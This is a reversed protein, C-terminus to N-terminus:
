ALAPGMASRRTTFFPDFIRSRESDPVGRGNDYVKVLVMRGAQESTIRIRPSAEAAQIGNRILNVIVQEIALPNLILAPLDAGLTTNITGGRQAAYARTLDIAREVISNIDASWREIPEQRAFRLVNRVIQGCRKANAIIDRLFRAQASEAGTSDWGIPHVLAQEASLLIMGVPNNIEHAIGAALTGVSALRETHRLQEQSAQLQRTREAVLEELRERYLQMEDANRAREIAVGALRAETEILRRDLNRPVGSARYYMALTGLVNGAASTIPHSLCARLDAERAADHYAHWRPDALIDDVIVLQGSHAAAGCAAAGPEIRMRDIAARFAPPLNPAAAVRLRNQDDVLMVAGLKGYDVEEVVRVLVELVAPLPSGAALQELVRHGGNRLADSRKRDTIDVMIGYVIQRGEEPVIRTSRDNLWVVRGDKAVMRYELDWPAQTLVHQRYAALTRERDAKYLRDIWFDQQALWEAATYGLIGEIQPSIYIPGGKFRVEAVYSVLPLQEILLRHQAEARLMRGILRQRVAQVVAALATTWLM